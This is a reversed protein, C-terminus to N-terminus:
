RRVKFGPNRALFKHVTANLSVVVSDLMDQCHLPTLYLLVEVATAHLIGRLAELNAPMLSRALDDVQLTLNCAKTIGQTSHRDKPESPKAPMLSQALKGVQRM